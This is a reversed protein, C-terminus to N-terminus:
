LEDAYKLEPHQEKFEYYLPWDEYTLDKTNGPQQRKLLVMVDIATLPGSPATGGKAGAKAQDEGPNKDKSFAIARVEPKKGAILDKSAGLNISFIEALPGFIDSQESKGGLKGGKPGKGEGGLGIEAPDVMQSESVDPFRFEVLVDDLTKKDAVSKRFYDLAQGLAGGHGHLIDKVDGSEQYANWYERKMCRYIRFDRREAGPGRKAKASTQHYQDLQQETGQLAPLGVIGLIVDQETQRRLDDIDTFARGDDYKNAFLEAIAKELNKGKLNGVAEAAEKKNITTRTHWTGLQGEVQRSILKLLEKDDKDYTKKDVTIKRQIALGGLQTGRSRLNLARQLQAIAQVQPSGNAADHLADLGTNAPRRELSPTQHRATARPSATTRRPSPRATQAYEAM